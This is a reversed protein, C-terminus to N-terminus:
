GLEGNKVGSKKKERKKERVVSEGKNRFEESATFDFSSAGGSTDGSKELARMLENNAGVLYDIRKAYKAEAREREEKRMAAIYVSVALSSSSANLNRKNM